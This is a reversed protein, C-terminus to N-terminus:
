HRGNSGSIIRELRESANYWNQRMRGGAGPGDGADIAAIVSEHERVSTSLEDVLASIYIRGYREIQPKFGQHLARLRPGAGERVVTEHFRRDLDFLVPPEAPTAAAAASLQGNLQRLRAALQSRHEPARGAAWRAALGEVEAIIAFLERADDTSLPAVYMRSQAGSSAHVYGEQELRQLAARVPTRSMGLQEAIDMEVVRAGPPLHGWVILERLRDYAM